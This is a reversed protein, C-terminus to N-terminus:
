LMGHEIWDGLDDALSEVSNFIRSLFSDDLERHARLDFTRQQVGKKDLVRVTAKTFGYKTVDKFDIVFVYNANTLIPVYREATLFMDKIEDNLERIFTKEWAEHKVDFVQKYLQQAEYDKFIVNDYNFDVAINDEGLLFDFSEKPHHCATLLFVMLALLLFNKKM